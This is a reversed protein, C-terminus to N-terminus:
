LHIQEDLTRSWIKAAIEGDKSLSIAKCLCHIGVHMNLVPNGPDSMIFSISGKVVNDELESKLMFSFDINTETSGEYVVVDKYASNTEMKEKADWISEVLELYNPFSSEQKDEPISFIFDPSVFVATYIPHDSVSRLNSSVPAIGTGSSFSEYEHGSMASLVDLVSTLTKIGFDFAPKVFKLINLVEVTKTTPVVVSDSTLIIPM